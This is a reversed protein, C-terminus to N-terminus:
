IGLIDEGLIVEIANKIKNSDHRVLDTEHGVDALLIKAKTIKHIKKVGGSSVQFQGKRAYHELVKGSLKTNSIVAYDIHDGKLYKVVDKIHEFAGYNPTEGPETMLNCIYIRKAGTKAIAQRIGPVILNTIVSTFLDGPGIIVADAYIVSAYADMNCEAKPEHWLKKIRLDPSRGEAIDIKSEGRVVTNDELMANLKISTTTVPIVIGQINLINSLSKIAEKMSGKIESLAALFINGFNHGRFGAGGAKFRYQLVQNMLAPANSLGVLSKRVDGPPLIGFSVRLRGTSGGDDSMGVISTIFTNPIQKVASLINFLGTGGGICSVKIKKYCCANFHLGFERENYPKIIFDTAGMAKAEHVTSFSSSSTVFIFDKKSSKLARLFNLRANKGYSSVSDDDFVACTFRGQRIKKRLHDLTHAYEFSVPNRILTNKMEECRDKTGILLARM